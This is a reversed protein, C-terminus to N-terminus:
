LLINEKIYSYEKGAQDSIRFEFNRQGHMTRTNVFHILEDRRHFYKQSYHSVV